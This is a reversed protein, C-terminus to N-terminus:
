SGMSGGQCGGEVMANTGFTEETAVQLAQIKQEKGLSFEGSGDLFVLQTITCNLM